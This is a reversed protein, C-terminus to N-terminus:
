ISGDAVTISISEHLGADGARPTGRIRGSTTDFSARTPLKDVTFRLTDRDPDQVAPLYDVTAGVQADALAAITIIRANGSVAPLARGTTTPNATAAASQEQGGGCAHRSRLSLLQLFASVFAPSHGQM